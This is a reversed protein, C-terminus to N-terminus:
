CIKQKVETIFYFILFYNFIKKKVVKFKKGSVGIRNGDLKVRAQVM